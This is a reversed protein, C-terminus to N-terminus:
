MLSNVITIYIIRLIIDTALSSFIMTETMLVFSNLLTHINLTHNFSVIAIQISNHGCGFATTVESFQICNCHSLSIDFKSYYNYVIAVKLTDTYVMKICAPHWNKIAVIIGNCHVAIIIM